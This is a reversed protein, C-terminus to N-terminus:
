HNRVQNIHQPRSSLIVVIVEKAEGTLSQWLSAQGDDAQEIQCPKEVVRGMKDPSPVVVSKRVGTGPYDSVSVNVGTPRKSYFTSRIWKLFGVCAPVSVCGTSGPDLGTDWAAGGDQM